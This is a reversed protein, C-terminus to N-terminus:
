GIEQLYRGADSFDEYERISLILRLFIGIKYKQKSFPDTNKRRVVFYFM